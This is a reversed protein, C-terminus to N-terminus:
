KPRVKKTPKAVQQAKQEHWCIVHADALENIEKQIVNAEANIIQETSGDSNKLNALTIKAQELPTLM